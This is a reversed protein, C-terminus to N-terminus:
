LILKFKNKDTQIVKIQMKEWEGNIEDGDNNEDVRIIMRKVLFISNM